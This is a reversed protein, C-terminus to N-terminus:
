KEKGRWQEIPKMPKPRGMTDGYVRRLEDGLQAVLDKEEQQM